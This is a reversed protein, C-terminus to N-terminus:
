IRDFDKNIDSVLDEVQSATVKSKVEAKVKDFDKRVDAAKKNLAETRKDLEAKTITDKISRLDELAKKINDFESNIDEVLNKTQEETTAAENLDKVDERLKAIENDVAVSHKDFESASVAKRDLDELKKEIDWVKKMNENLEGIKIKLINFKDVTVLDSKSDKLDQKVEALKVGQQHMGERLATMDNKINTFSRQLAEDLGRIGKAKSFESDSKNAM